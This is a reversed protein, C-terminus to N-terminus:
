PSPCEGYVGNGRVRLGRVVVPAPTLPRIRSSRGRVRQRGRVASVRGPLGVDRGAGTELSVRKVPVHTPRSRSRPVVPRSCWGSVPGRPLFRPTSIGRPSSPLDPRVLVRIRLVGWYCHRVLGVTPETGERQVKRGSRTKGQRRTGTSSRFASELDRRGLVLIPPVVCVTERGQRHPPVTWGPGVGGSILPGVVPSGSVISEGPDGEWFRLSAILVYTPVSSATGDDPHVTHFSLCNSWLTLLTVYGLVGLKNQACVVTIIM